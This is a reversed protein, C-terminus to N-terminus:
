PCKEHSSSGYSFGVHCNGRFVQNLKDFAANVETNTRRCYLSEFNNFITNADGLKNDQLLVKLFNITSQSLNASDKLEEIVQRKEKRRGMPDALFDRVEPEEIFVSQLAIFAQQMHLLIYQALVTPSLLDQCENM